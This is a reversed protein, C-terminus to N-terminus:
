EMMDECLIRLKKARQEGIRGVVSQYDSVLINALSRLLKERTLFHGDVYIPFWDHPFELLAEYINFVAGVRKGDARHKNIELEGLGQEFRYVPNEWLPIRAVIPAADSISFVLNKIIERFDQDTKLAKVGALGPSFQQVTNLDVQHWIPLIKNGAEIYQRMLTDFEFQTWGKRIYDKSILLLGTKSERMGSEISLLIREGVSIAIPAYWVKLGNYQLAGVIQEALREDESAYSIFVDFTKRKMEDYVL